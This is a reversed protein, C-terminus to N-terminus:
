CRIKEHKEGSQLGNNTIASLRLIHNKCCLLALLSAVRM